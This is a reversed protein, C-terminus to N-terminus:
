VCRQLGTRPKMPCIGVIKKPVKLTKEIVGLTDQQRTKKNVWQHGKGYIVLYTRPTEDEQDDPHVKEVFPEKTGRRFTDIPLGGLSQFLKYNPEDKVTTVDKRPRHAISCVVGEYRPYGRKRRKALEYMAAATLYRGLGGPGDNAKCLLYIEGLKEERALKDVKTHGWEMMPGPDEDDDEDDDDDDDEDEIYPEINPDHGGFVVVGVVKPYAARYNDERQLAVLAQADDYISLDMVKTVFDNNVPDRCLGHEEKVKNVLWRMAPTNHPSASKNDAIAKLAKNSIPKITVGNLARWMKLHENVKKLHSKSAADM